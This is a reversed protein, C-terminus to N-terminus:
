FYYSLDIRIHDEHRLSYVPDTKVSSNFFRIETEIKFSDGLRRSAEINFFQTNNRRDFLIGALIETNQVDNFAFRLATLFDDQLPASLHNAGRSDYMYEVVIGLDLGSSFLDYFTYEIGSASAYFTKEQGSRVIAEHKFIWSEYTLQVDLGTQNILAYHPILQPTGTPSLRLNFTPERSMGYFHSLGIDWDGLTHSWRLVYALHKAAGNSAYTADSVSVEPFSRLRGEIGPFTRDRFGLLLFLDVTGWDRILALNIMPQGLKDEGDNNEVLDTQNIIDVLHIGETVGWFVKRIGTRLEWDQEALLWTLERIDFHTRQSDHQSYRYFPVFTFSQKGNDWERYLEPEIAFSVYNNHQRPDLRDHFFGLEEFSIKGSLEWNSFIGDNGESSDLNFFGSFGASSIALSSTQQAYVLNSLMLLACLYACTLIKM